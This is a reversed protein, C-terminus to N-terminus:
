INVIKGFDIQAARPFQTKLYAKLDVPVETLFVASSKDSGRNSHVVVDVYFSYGKTKMKGCFAKFKKDLEVKRADYKATLKKMFCLECCGERNNSEYIPVFITEGCDSCTTFKVQTLMFAIDTETADEILINKDLIYDKSVIRGNKVIKTELQVGYNPYMFSCPSISVEVEHGSIVLKVGNKLLAVKKDM